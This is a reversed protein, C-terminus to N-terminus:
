RARNAQGPSPMGPVQVGSPHPALMFQPLLALNPRIEPIAACVWRRVIPHDCARKGIGIKPGYRLDLDM